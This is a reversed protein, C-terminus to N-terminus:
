LRGELYRQCAGHIADRHGFPVAAHQEVQLIIHRTYAASRIALAIQVYGFQIQISHWPKM